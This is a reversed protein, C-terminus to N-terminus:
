VPYMPRKGVVSEKCDFAVDFAFARFFADCNSLDNLPCYIQLANDIRIANQAIMGQIDRLESMFVNISRLNKSFGSFNDVANHVESVM